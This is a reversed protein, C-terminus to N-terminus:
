RTVPLYAQEWEKMVNEMKYKAAVQRAMQGMKEREKTHIIMWEMKDALDQVEMKALLGTKGDEVIESPGYPCDTSVVPIGCAMAEVIVLGFGEFDSSLVFFESRLYEAYIDHTPENLHIREQLGLSEIHMQLDERLPGEGYIDLTWSPHKEAIISFADILRNFRKQKYMRGVAIIRGPKRQVVPLQDSYQTVPNPIITVNKVGRDSWSKADFQTLSILLDCRRYAKIPPFLRYIFRETFPKNLLHFSSALHSEICIRVGKAVRLMDYVFDETNPITISIVDPKFSTIVDSLRRRFTRHIKQYKWFRAYPPVQYMKYLPTDLDVHQVRKDLPYYIPEHGQMYTLLLVEHGQAVMWNSKDALTRELGGVPNLINAIFILRM